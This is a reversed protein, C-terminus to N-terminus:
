NVVGDAHSTDALSSPWPHFRHPCQCIHLPGSVQANVETFVVSRDPLILADTSLHGRYGFARYADAPRTGSDVLATRVPETVGDLPVVQHSLRRGIYRLRGSETARTGAEAVHHESYM